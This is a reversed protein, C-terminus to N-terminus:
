PASQGEWDRLGDDGWEPSSGYKEALKEYREVLKTVPVRVKSRPFYPILRFAAVPELSVAGDLEAIIYSGGTTRRVVIMPGFYRPKSKKSLDSEIKSNRIIVLEGAEFEFDIIRNANDKEWQRVSKVRDEYIKTRLVELDVERKMLHRARQAILEETSIETDFVPSMYTAEIIDFPFLPEVGHAMWYPSRGTVKSISVREAWFVYFIHKPWLTMDGECAKVLAERVSYHRREIVGQAQSNYGSIRIHHIGYKKALWDVAKVWPKGNDTSIEVIAGWRCLIEEFLFSGLTFADENVMMRWEPWSSVSCRAHAVTRFGNQRPLFMTDAYVKHFLPLPMAVTPPLLVKETARIQCEHCTNLFWRIDQDMMPWWFRDTLRKSTILHAKHGLDDHVQKLIDMRKKEVLYLKHEGRPDRKWLKNEKRFFGRVKKLFRKHRQTSFGPPHQLDDLYKFVREMDKDAERARESRPINGDETAAFSALVWVTDTDDQEETLGVYPNVHDTFVSVFGEEEAAGMYPNETTPISACVAKRSTNNWNAAIISFGCARDIWDEPDEDDIPDEPAGPRRSLGDPAHSIGPTHEIAFDFLLIAAIWRNMAANPQIDPNNLMGKIYKADTRVLLQPAGVLYIRYARLARFLGYLEIKAQSYRSERENWTISGFRSPYEKGDEGVQLLIFGAAIYSADVSLIILRGSGYDIQRIAPCEILIKKLIEMSYKEDPGFTFEVDKKTLRVLPRAHLAFDKMFIRMLGLTGLFARVETLSECDPWDRIVQVKSEDPTRGQYSCVHGVVRIRAVAMSTKRANFTGNAHGMRQLLRNVNEMHEWVFRRIGPNLPIVEYTGDGRLYYDEGGKVPTDDVFPQTVHPIEDRLIFAVDGQQIQVANTYGQPLRTLRLTGLPSQFTTFDRSAVDLVRHDFGVYLDFMAYIVRGGFSEAYLELIPPCGADKITVANLPQLNHVIRLAGKEAKPVCFWSSRYSSSSPEYVGSAIKAKIIKVVQDRIGPPIPINKQQWPTHALIPLKVPEFYDERFCGRESDDWAFAMEHNKLVDTVLREEEPWLFGDPNLNMADLREQTLRKGPTFPPPNPNLPPMNALPDSPCKRVVRFEEPLSAAVSHVKKAAPKYKKKKKKEPKEEVAAEGATTKVTFAHIIENYEYAQTLCYQLYTRSVEWVQETDTIEIARVHHTNTGNPAYLILPPALATFNFSPINIRQNHARKWKWTAYAPLPRYKLHM